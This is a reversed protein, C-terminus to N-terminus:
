NGYPSNLERIYKLQVELKKHNKENEYQSQLDPYPALFEDLVEKDLSYEKKLEFEFTFFIHNKFCM